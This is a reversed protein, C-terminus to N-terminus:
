AACRAQPPWEAFAKALRDALAEAMIANYDDDVLELGDRMVSALLHGRTERNDHHSISGSM